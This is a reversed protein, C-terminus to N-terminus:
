PVEGPGPTPSGAVSILADAPASLHLVRRRTGEAAPHLIRPPKAGQDIHSGAEEGSTSQGPGDPHSSWGAARLGRLDGPQKPRPAASVGVGELAHQGEDVVLQMAHGGAVERALARAHAQLRRAEDVLQAQPQEVPVADAPLVPLVEEAHRRHHHAAHEDVDRATTPGAAAAAWM